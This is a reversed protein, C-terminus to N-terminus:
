VSPGVKSILVIVFVFLSTYNMAKCISYEVGNIGKPSFWKLIFFVTLIIECSIMSIIIVAVLPVNYEIFCSISVLVSVAVSITFLVIFFPNKINVNWPIEKRREIKITGIILLIAPIVFVTLIIIVFASILEIM